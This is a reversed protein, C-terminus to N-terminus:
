IDCSRCSGSIKYVVKKTKFSVLKILLLYCRKFDFARPNDSERKMSIAAHQASVTVMTSKVPRSTSTDAGTFVVMEREPAAESIRQARSLPWLM